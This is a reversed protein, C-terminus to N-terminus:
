KQVVVKKHWQKNGIRMQVIYIGAGYDGLSIRENYRAQGGAWVQQGVVRGLADYVNIQVDEAAADALEFSLNVDGTTPNPYVQLSVDESVNYRTVNILTDCDTIVIIDETYVTDYQYLTDRTLRV